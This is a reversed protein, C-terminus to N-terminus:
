PSALPKVLELASPLYGYGCGSDRVPFWKHRLKYYKMFKECIHKKIFSGTGTETMSKFRIGTCQQVFFLWILKSSYLFSRM